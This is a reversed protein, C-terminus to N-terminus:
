DLAEFLRANLDFAGLSEAVVQDRQGADLPLHDLAARYGEKFRNPDPIGPFEYFALPALGTGGLQPEILGRLIQGGSLDGLYRTYAHAVLLWPARDTALEIRATYERAPQVLAIARPWESGALAGLDQELAARRFLEPFYLPQVLPHAQHRELGAELARYVPHLNGLLAVYSRREMRGRLLSQMIGSREARTHAQRTEQRLRASLTERM